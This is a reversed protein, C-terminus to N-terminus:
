LSTSFQCRGRIQWLTVGGQCGTNWIVVGVGWPLAGGVQLTLDLIVEGVGSIIVGVRRLLARLSHMAGGVGRFHNYLCGCSGLLKVWGDEVWMGVTEEAHGAVM